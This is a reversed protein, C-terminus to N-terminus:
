GRVWEAGARTKGAGRGGLILWIRWPLGAQSLEPPRQHRHVFLPWDGALRDTEGAKLGALFERKEDPWLQTWADFLSEVSNTSTTPAPMMTTPPGHRTTATMPKM